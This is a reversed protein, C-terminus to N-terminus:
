DSTELSPVLNDSSAVFHYKISAFEQKFLLLTFRSDETSLKRDNPVATKKSRKM